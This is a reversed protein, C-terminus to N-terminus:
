KEAQAKLKTSEAQIKFHPAKLKLKLSPPYTHEARTRM